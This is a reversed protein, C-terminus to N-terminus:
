FLFGLRIFSNVIPGFNLQRTNGVKTETETGGDPKNKITSPSTLGVGIGLEAGVYVHKAFYYDFGAVANAGIRTFGNRGTIKDKKITTGDQRESTESTTRIALDLEAGVYPSLRDTGAFHKEIGPRIAFDFQTSRDKLEEDTNGDKKDEDQTVESTSSYGVFATARLASTPSSFQRYRIGGISIPSGGLPAFQVELNKEGGAPKFDQAQSVSIAVIGVLLTLIKKM